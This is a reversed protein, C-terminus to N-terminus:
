ERIRTNLKRNDFGIKKLYNFLQMKCISKFYFSCLVWTYQFLIVRTANPTKDRVEPRITDTQSCWLQSNKHRKVTTWCCLTTSSLAGTNMVKTTSQIFVYTVFILHALSLSDLCSLWYTPHCFWPTIFVSHVLYLLPSFSVNEKDDM